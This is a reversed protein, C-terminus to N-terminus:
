KRVRIRRLHHGIGSGMGLAEADLNAPQALTEVALLDQRAEVKVDPGTFDEDDHARAAAALGDQELMEDAQFLRICAFDEDATLRHLRGLDHVLVAHRHDEM